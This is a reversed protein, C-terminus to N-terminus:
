GIDELVEAISKKHIVIPHLYFVSIHNMQGVIYVKRLGSSDTQALALAAGLEVLMGKGPKVNDSCLIYVDANIVGSIDAAARKGSEEMNALKAERSSLFVDSATWDHTVVHGAQEFLDMYGRIEESQDLQGSIFVKM